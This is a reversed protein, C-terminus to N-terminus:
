EIKILGQLIVDRLRLSSLRSARLNLGPVPRHFNLLLRHELDLQPVHRNMPGKSGLGCFGAKYVVKIKADPYNKNMHKKLLSVDANQSFSAIKIDDMRCNIKWNTKHVDLGCYITQGAFSLHNVKNM